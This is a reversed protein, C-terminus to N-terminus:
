IDYTFYNIEGKKMNEEKQRGIKSVALKLGSKPM